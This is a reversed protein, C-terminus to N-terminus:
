LLARLEWTEEADTATCTVTTTGIPFIAAGGTGWSMGPGYVTWTNAGMVGLCVPRDTPNGDSFTVVGTNDTVTIVGNDWFYGAGAPGILDSDTTTFTQDSPM